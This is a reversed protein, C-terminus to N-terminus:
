ITLLSINSKKLFVSFSGRGKRRRKKLLITLTLPAERLRLNYSTCIAIILMFYSKSALFVIFCGVKTSIKDSYFLM